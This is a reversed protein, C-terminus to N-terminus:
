EDGADPFAEEDKYPFWWFDQARAGPDIMASKTHRFTDLGEAGLQRGMGSMKRGGFPGADNDLLPANVWVMGTEIEKVARMAENLNTTFINAGLGYSSQNALEIAQDLSSVKCIPAVPGFSEANMIDMDPTVETLVAPETFWGRNFGAPREGGCVVRAGQEIARQLVGEYREREKHTVMPGIDVKDLGSGIRLSKTNVIMKEVFADHIDEHVLFREAATCVQGCNLYAVFTAGRAAMAVPRFAAGAISKTALAIYPTFM